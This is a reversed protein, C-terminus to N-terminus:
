LGTCKVTNHNFIGWDHGNWVHYYDISADFECGYFVCFVVRQFSFAM